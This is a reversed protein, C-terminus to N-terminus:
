APAREKQRRLADIKTKMEPGPWDELLWQPLPDGPGGVALAEDQDTRGDSFLELANPLEYYIEFTNGDPDAFYFSRQNVALASRARGCRRGLRYSHLM